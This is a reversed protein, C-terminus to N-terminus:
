STPAESGADLFVAVPIEALRLRSTRDEAVDVWILYIRDEIRELRPFGSARTSQTEAVAVSRQVRGDSTLLSLKLRAVGPGNALWSVIAGAEGTSVLDVRGLPADGDILIPEDFSAGGDRSLAAWVSPNDAAATFWAVFLDDGEVATAPGNVPCGPIVWGDSAVRTSAGWQGSERRVIAIDRVESESRDRFVVLPEGDVVEATTACCDCVREDLVASPLVEERVITTRLSMPGEEVMARGDLWFARVADAEPVWSVFGHETPTADDNLRGLPQWSRGSDASRALFISYAYTEEGTKELWHAVMSGDGSEIVAPIDAWNAFFDEGEAITAPPLWEGDVLRSFRLRHSRGGGEPENEELWSAALHGGVVTLNPALSDSNAPPDAERWQLEAEVQIGASDEDVPPPRGEPTCGALWAVWGLVCVTRWWSTTRFLTKM